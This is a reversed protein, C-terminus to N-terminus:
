VLVNYEWVLEEDVSLYMLPLVSNTIIVQHRGTLNGLFPQLVLTVVRLGSM